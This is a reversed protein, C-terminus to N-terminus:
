AAVVGMSQCAPPTLSFFGYLIDQVQTRVKVLMGPRAPDLNALFLEDLGLGVKAEVILSGRRQVVTRVLRTRVALVSM